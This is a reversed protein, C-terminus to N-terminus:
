AEAEGGELRSAILCQTRYSSKCQIQMTQLAKLSIKTLSLAVIVTPGLQPGLILTGSFRSIESDRFVGFGLYYTATALSLRYANNVYYRYWKYVYSWRFFILLSIFLYLFSHFNSLLTYNSHNHHYFLSSVYYTVSLLFCCLVGLPSSLRYLLSRLYLCGTFASDINFHRQDAVVLCLFTM